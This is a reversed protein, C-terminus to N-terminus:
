KAIRETSGGAGAPGSRKADGMPAVKGAPRTADDAPRTNVGSVPAGDEGPRTALPAGRGSKGNAETKARAGAEKAALDAAKKATESETDSKESGLGTLKKFFSM